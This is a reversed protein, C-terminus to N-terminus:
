STSPLRPSSPTLTGAARFQLMAFLDVALAVAIVLFRALPSLEAWYLTLLVASGAVWAADAATFGLMIPREITDRRAAVVLAGAYALLGVAIVDLWWPTQLGFERFLVNRTLLMGVGCAATSLGNLFLIRHPTM